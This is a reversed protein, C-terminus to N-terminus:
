PSCCSSIGRLLLSRSLSVDFPVSKYSKKHWATRIFVVVTKQNEFLANFRVKAGSADYLELDSLAAIDAQEPLAKSADEMPRNMPSKQFDRVVFSSEAEHM